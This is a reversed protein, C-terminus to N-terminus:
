KDGGTGHKHAPAGGIPMAKTKGDPSDKYHCLLGDQCPCTPDAGICPEERALAARLAEMVKTAEDDRPDTLVRLLTLAAQAAERLDIHKM